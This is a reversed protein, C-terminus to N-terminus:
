GKRRYQGARRSARPLQGRRQREREVAGYRPVCLGGFCFGIAAVNGADVEPQEKVVSLIDALRAQLMKRDGVFPEILKQNEEKSSGLVGKGFLDVAVGTYGLKALAEAKDNEFASRGAWAHCIMVAPKANESDSALVAEHTAGNIDYDFSRTKITM